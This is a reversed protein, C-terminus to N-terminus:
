RFFLGRDLIYCGKMLIIEHVLPAHYSKWLIYELWLEIYLKM